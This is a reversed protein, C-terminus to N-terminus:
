QIRSRHTRAVESWGSKGDLSLFKDWAAAADKPKGAQEWTLGLNFWAEPYNGDLSVAKNLAGILEM